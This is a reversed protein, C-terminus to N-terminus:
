GGREAPLTNRSSKRALGQLLLAVLASELDLYENRVAKFFYYVAGSFLLFYDLRFQQWLLRVSRLIRTSETGQRLTELGRGLATEGSFYKNM